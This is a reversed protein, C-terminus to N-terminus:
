ILAAISEKKYNGCERIKAPSKLIRIPAEAVHSLIVSDIFFIPM